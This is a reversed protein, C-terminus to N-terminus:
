ARPGPAAEEWWLDAKRRGQESPKPPLGRSKLWDVVMREVEPVAERVERTLGVEYGVVGPVVGFLIVERVPTGAFDLALLTEQVGPDHPSTRARPAHALLADRDYTRITGPPGDSRVTDILAVTDYGALHPFLDLGPTGLDQVEVEDPFKWRALLSQIVTPGLADDGMLVNGLGVITVRAGM